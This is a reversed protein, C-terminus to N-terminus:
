RRRVAIVTNLPDWATGVPLTIEYGDATRKLAVPKGTAVLTAPGTLESGDETPGLRLVSGDPPTMVHLYITKGDPSETSVGWARRGFWEREKTTYAKGPRTDKVAVAVPQILENIKVM